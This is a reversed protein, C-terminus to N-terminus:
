AARGHNAHFGFRRNAAQRAAFAAEKTNFYGLNRVRGDGKVMAVWKGSKKHLSVGTLGSTNTSRRKQNRSNEAGTVDRLNALRNDTKDGNIHDIAFEPWRGHVIAWAAKHATITQGYIAGHYYGNKNKTRLAPKGANRSNWIKCSHSADQESGFFHSPSRENWTLTGTHPDYDLLEALMHPELTPRVSM